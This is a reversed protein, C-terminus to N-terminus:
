ENPEIWEGAANAYVTKSEEGATIVLKYNDSADKYAESITAGEFDKGVVATIAEPLASIEIAEYGQVTAVAETVAEEAMAPAEQASITGATFVFAAAAVVLRLNKM